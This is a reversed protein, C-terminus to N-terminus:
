IKMTMNTKTVGRVLGCARATNKKMKHGELKVAWQLVADGVAGAGGKFGFM